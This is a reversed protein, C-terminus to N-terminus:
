AGKVEIYCTLGRDSLRKRYFYDRTVEGREGDKRSEEEKNVTRNKALQIGSAYLNKKASLL